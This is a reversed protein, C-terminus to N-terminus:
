DYKVVRLDEHSALECLLRGDSEIREKYRIVM